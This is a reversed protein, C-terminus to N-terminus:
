RLREGRLRSYLSTFLPCNNVTFPYTNHNSYRDDDYEDRRNSPLPLCSPFAATGDAIATM